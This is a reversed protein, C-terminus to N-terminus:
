FKRTQIQQLAQFSRYGMFGAFIGLFLQGSLMGFVCIFAATGVSIMLTTRIRRPGLLTQVLRGGDLPLIPLLNLIAWIISIFYLSRLFDVAYPSLNPISRLCVMATFGLVIQIAPGAATIAFTQRPRLPKNNDYEAYGGFAQLVIHVRKGFSKATLAHGLEHILISIFGALIFLLLGFIQEKSDAFLRGSVFAMTLWFIPEIRVPINFISFNIM